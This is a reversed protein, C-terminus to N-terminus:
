SFPVLETCLSAFLMIITAYVGGAAADWYKWRWGCLCGGFDILTSVEMELWSSLVM